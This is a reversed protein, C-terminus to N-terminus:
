LSETYKKAVDPSLESLIAAAQKKKIKYLIQRSENDSYKQIIKAAKKPDMEEFLKATKALWEEDKKKSNVAASDSNSQQEKTKNMLNQVMKRIIRLSDILKEDLPSSIFVTDYKTVIKPSIKRDMSGSLSIGANATKTNNVASHIITRNAIKRKSFDFQFINTYQNNLWYILGTVLLFALFFISAYIIKYKM